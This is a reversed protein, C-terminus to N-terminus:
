VRTEPSRLKQFPYLLQSLYTLPVAENAGYVTSWKGNPLYLTGFLHDILPQGFNKNQADPDQSHHWHHFEPTGIIWRLVPFRFRVNAHVFLAQFASVFIYVGFIEKTFGLLVLPVGVFVKSVIMEVPHFRFSALWDLESSSHHIVHFRWLWPMTHALRHIIYFSLEAVLLAELFQLWGPQQAIAGQLAPHVAGRFLLLLPISTIAVGVKVWIQNMAFHTVDTAWGQRFLKQKRLPFFHEVGSFIVFIVVIIILRM